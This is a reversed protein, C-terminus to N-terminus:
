AAPRSGPRSRRTTSRRTRSSSGRRHIRSTRSSGSVRAFRPVISVGLSGAAASRHAGRGPVVTGPDHDHAAAQGPHDSGESEPLLADPDVEVLRRVAEPALGAGLLAAVPPRVVAVVHEGGPVVVEPRQDVLEAISVVENGALLEESKGRFPVGFARRHHPRPVIRLAMSRTLRRWRYRSSSLREPKRRLRQYLPRSVPRSSRSMERLPRPLGAQSTDDSVVRWFMRSHSLTSHFGLQVATSPLRCSRKMAGM